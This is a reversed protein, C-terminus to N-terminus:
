KPPDSAQGTEQERVLDLVDFRRVGPDSFFSAVAEREDTFVEFVTDLKAVVMLSLHLPSLNLLKLAGGSTVIRVHCFVLTGVGDDDVETVGGFNLIVNVVHAEALTVIATRLTAESAGITLRGQLDLIRIGEIERQHIQLDM